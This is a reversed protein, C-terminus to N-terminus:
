LRTIKSSPLHITRVESGFDVHVQNAGLAVVRGLGHRDHTLLDDIAFRENPLALPAQFPSAPLNPRRAASRSNM